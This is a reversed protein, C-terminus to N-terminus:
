RRGENYFDNLTNSMMNKDRILTNRRRVLMDYMDIWVEFIRNEKIVDDEIEDIFNNFRSIYNTASKIFSEIEYIADNLKISEGCISISEIESKNNKYVKAMGNRSATVICERLVNMRENSPNNNIMNIFNNVRNEWQERDNIIELLHKNTSCHKEETLYIRGEAILKDFNNLEFEIDGKVLKILKSFKSM